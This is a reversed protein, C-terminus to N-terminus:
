GGHQQQQQVAAQAQHLQAQLAAVAPQAALWEESIIGSKVASEVERQAMDPTFHVGIIGGCKNCPVQPFVTGNVDSHAWQPPLLGGQWFRSTQPLMAVIFLEPWEFVVKCSANCYRCDLATQLGERTKKKAIKERREMAGGQFIGVGENDGMVDDFYDCNPDRAGDWPRGQSM